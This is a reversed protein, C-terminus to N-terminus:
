LGYGLRQELGARVDPWEEPLISYWATQRIYGDPLIMHNRFTGERKCGLKEMARQSHLNRGDTKFQVRICGLTEFAHQLMLYKMEPNVKTGQWPKTIWTAGIELSKHPERIDLYSSSGIPQGSGQHIVAFAGVLPDRACKKVCEGFEEETDGYWWLRMLQFLEPTAARWLGSVHQEGLPELRVERGILTVSEGWVSKDQVIPPLVKGVPYHQPQKNQHEAEPM